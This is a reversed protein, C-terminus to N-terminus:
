WNHEMCPATDHYWRAIRVVVTPGFCCGPFWLLMVSPRQMHRGGGRCTLKMCLQQLNV